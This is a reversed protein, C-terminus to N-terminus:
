QMIRVVNFNAKKTSIGYLTALFVPGYCQRRDNVAVASSHTRRRGGRPYLAM